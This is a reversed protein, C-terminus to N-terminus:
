SDCPCVLTCIMFYYNRFLVEAFVSVCACLLMCWYVRLCLREVTGQSKAQMGKEDM